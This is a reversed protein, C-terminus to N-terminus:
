VLILGGDGDMEMRRRGRMGREEEGAGGLMLSESSLLFPLEDCHLRIHRTLM